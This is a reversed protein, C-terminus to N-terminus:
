GSKPLTSVFALMKISIFFIDMQFIVRNNAEYVPCVWCVLMGPADTLLGETVAERLATTRLKHAAVGNAPQM